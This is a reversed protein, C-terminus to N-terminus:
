PLNLHRLLNQYRSDSRLPDYYPAAVYVLMSDHDTYAKELWRIAKEKDDLAMYVDAFRTPPVYTHKSLEQWHELIKLAETRRGTLAYVRGLYLDTEPLDGLSRAKDIEARAEEKLGKEAYAVALYAHPTPDNPFLEICQRLSAIAEELRGAIRLMSGESATLRSALPDYHKATAVEALAETHRGLSSLLMAYAGHAGANSPDLQLAIHFEREAGAWDWDFYRNIIGLAVHATPLSGDIELAKLAAARAKPFVEVPPLVGNAGEISYALALGAYALAYTPEKQIAQQFSQLSREMAPRTRQGLYFLGKLYFDHAEPDISHREVRQSQLPPLLEPMLSQAVRQAVEAQLALVGRLEREYTESWLQTQDSVHILEATIRVRGAERRVSSELVYDVSLERGIDAIGKDTNKYKMASTRAIVGLRKPQLAGLRAIMEETLGDSFYDQDPDLSLNKAPLVAVMLRAQVPAALAHRARAKERRYWFGAAAFLALLLLVIVVRATSRTTSTLPPTAGAAVRQLDVAIERPSAYRLDPDKELCKLIIAELAPNLKHNLKSPLLPPRHLIAEILAPGHGLFPRQGTAMEYLVCGAAWIDTRPDLKENLLQEPAMYPFTGSVTQTETLSATADTDSGPTATHLVKALGFDLIKLRADPTVRINAPKLDRHIIGHEHAAALGEALQAGLHIIEREPLPGSLLMENLPLGSILEEVLFDTGDQTDFDHVVAINPHNLKSLALAERRFRKRASEDALKGPPLVKLAVDCELHEDHARYVVGMGGQGIQELIRYHSLTAQM